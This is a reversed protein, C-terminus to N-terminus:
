NLNNNASLPDGSIQYKDADSSSSKNAQFSPLSCAPICFLSYKLEQYLVNNWLTTFYNGAKYAKFSILGAFARVSIKSSLSFFIAIVECLGMQILFYVSLWCM